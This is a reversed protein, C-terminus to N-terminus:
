ASLLALPRSYRKYKRKEKILLDIQQHLMHKHQMLIDYFIWKDEVTEIITVLKKILLKLSVIIKDFTRHIKEYNNVGTLHLIDNHPNKTAFKRVLNRVARSSLHKRQVLESLMIQTKKDTVPLLEEGTSVKIESTSILEIM